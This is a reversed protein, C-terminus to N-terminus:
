IGIHINDGGWIEKYFNSINDNAYYQKINTSYSM